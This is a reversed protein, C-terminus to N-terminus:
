WGRRERLATVHRVHHRGHWSYTQVHRDLTFTIGNEPHFFTRSWDAPTLSEYVATWRRHLAEILSLSVDVPLRADALDATLKEDYPKITPNHETLALKVRLFGHMHSDALHHVVHRVTWGGDRYPTDLQSDSLGAVAARIQSPLAAIDAIAAARLEPTAPVVPAFPGIPYRPDDIM